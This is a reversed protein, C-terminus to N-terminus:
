LKYCYQKSEVFHLVKMVQRDLFELPMQLSVDTLAQGATLSLLDVQSVAIVLQGLWFLDM